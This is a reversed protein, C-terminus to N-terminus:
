WSVVWGGTEADVRSVHELSATAEKKEVTSCLLVDMKLPRGRMMLPKLIGPRYLESPEYWQYRLYLTKSDIPPLAVHRGPHITALYKALGNGGGSIFADEMDEIFGFCKRKLEDALKGDKTTQKSKEMYGLKTVVLNKERGDSVRDRIGDWPDIFKGHPLVVIKPM